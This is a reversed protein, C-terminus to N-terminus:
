RVNNTGRCNTGYLNRMKKAKQRAITSSFDRGNSTDCPSLLGLNDILGKFINTAVKKYRVRATRPRAEGPRVHRRRGQGDHLSGNGEAHHDHNAGQGARSGAVWIWLAVEFGGEVGRSRQMLAFPCGDRKKPGDITATRPSSRREGRENM